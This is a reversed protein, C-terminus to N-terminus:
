LGKIPFGVIHNGMSDTKIIKNTTVQPLQWCEGPECVRVCPFDNDHLLKVFEDSNLRAIPRAFADIDGWFLSPDGLGTPMGRDNLTDTIEDPNLDLLQYFRDKAGPTGMMLHVYKGDKCKFITMRSDKPVMAMFMPDPEQAQYWM